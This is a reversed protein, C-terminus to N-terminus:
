QSIITANDLVVDFLYGTCVGKVTVVQGITAKNTPQPENPALNCVVQGLPSDAALNLAFHGDNEQNVASLTGSVEMVKGAYTGNAKTEDTEFAAYLSGANITLETPAKHIDLPAKPQMFKFAVLGGVLLLPLGFKLLKLM